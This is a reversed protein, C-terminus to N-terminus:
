YSIRCINLSHFTYRPIEVARALRNIFRDKNTDIYNLFDAPTAM